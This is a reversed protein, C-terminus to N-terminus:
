LLKEDTIILQNSVIDGSIGYYVKSSKPIIAKVIFHPNDLKNYYSVWCQAKELEVFSHLGEYVDNVIDGNNRQWTEIRFDFTYLKNFEVIMRKYPTCYVDRWLEIMKLVVLDEDLIIPKLEPHINKDITLCM